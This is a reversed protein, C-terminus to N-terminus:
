KAQDLKAARAADHWWLIREGVGSSYDSIQYRPLKEPRAFMDWYALRHTKSYWQPVWYRGARFVRDFARCAVTLEERSSAAIIKEILADLVPSEIGALNYSGKTKAASSAFFSRMSDGPTASMSFRQITMDFDFDEVRARYQVADVLRPSAEIGLTVLNKIYPAHHPNLSPEDYLFEIKFVEGSPLHRKGDKIAFGADNLLAQAKRLLARDQGSGDTVPPLFAEGFVEDPVQGRFPELLKLEEPSPPGGTVMMDSNQFPSHTRAYAGYMITKNTWEFDFALILAERVRPDRFQPRRTNIFWGQAGSPTEDPVEERKVRGDKIAPFDYRTAWIRSTFEERYLYNKGTFGEFAVDRDRYFEYRIVDFNYSGRCAPLDAGWWDKVREYEIFRNVEFKGVKYPGSGLPADTTSEDFARTEYYKKSFIPLGATYLPVDRARKEAFMVAVTADDLAEAGKVDRMQVQVLPHGKAKLTNISWAVDHATIKSGDHFKAEPRLTFRYTLKHPSIRVSKAALGYMADPEDGARVMLAAFTLDMGQAGEGKLIFANLSNFTQYSQNYARVSPITSFMGGKPAALNVYDFNKFDAPYKLDGFASIGHVEAGAAEDAAVAPSLRLAAMAGASAKLFHRRSFAAM